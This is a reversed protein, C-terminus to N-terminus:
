PTQFTKHKFNLRRFFPLNLPDAFNRLFNVNKKPNRKAYKTSLVDCM